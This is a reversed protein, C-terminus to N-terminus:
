EQEKTQDMPGGRLEFILKDFVIPEAYRNVQLMGDMTMQFSPRDSFGANSFPLCCIVAGDPRLIKLEMFRAKM